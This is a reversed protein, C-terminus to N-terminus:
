LLLIDLIKIYTGGVVYIIRLTVLLIWKAQLLPTKIVQSKTLYPVMKMHRFEHNSPKEEKSKGPIFYTTDM